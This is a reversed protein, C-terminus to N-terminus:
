KDKPYVPFIHVGTSSYHIQFTSVDMYRQTKSLWTKGVISDAIITERPYAQGKRLEVDGTGKYRDVLAQADVELIAPEGTPDERKIQERKQEFERTGQIHKNQRGQVVRSPYTGDLIKQREREIEMAEERLQNEAHAKM